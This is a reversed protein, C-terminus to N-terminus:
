GHLLARAWRVADRANEIDRDIGVNRARRWKAFALVTQANQLSRTARYRSRGATRLAQLPRALRHVTILRTLEEITVAGTATEDALMHRLVYREREWGWGMVILILWAGGWDAAERVIGAARGTAAIYGTHCLVAAGFGAAALIWLRPATGRVYGLSAGFLSTFLGQSLGGILLSLAPAPAFRAIQGGAAMERVYALSEALALGAGVTAGVVMGDLADSFVRRASLFVGLVIAAKAAEEVLGTWPSLPIYRQLPPPFISDPLGSAAEVLRILIPTVAASLTLMVVLHNIPEREYPDAIWLLVVYCGTFVVILLITALVPLGLPM